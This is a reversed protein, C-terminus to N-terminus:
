RPAAGMAKVMQVWNQILAIRPLGAGVQDIYLFQKGDPFIDWNANQINFDGLGGEVVVRRNAV